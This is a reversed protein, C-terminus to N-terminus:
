SLPRVMFRVVGRNKAAATTATNNEAIWSEARASDTVDAAGDEATFAPCDGEAAIV